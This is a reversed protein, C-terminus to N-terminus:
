SIIEVDESIYGPSRKKQNHKIIEFANILSNKAESAHMGLVIGLSILDHASRMQWPSQSFSAFVMRLKYKRCLRINQMTRGLILPKNKSNLISNLSFGITIERKYALNCLVQNLGSVRYHIKDKRLALEFDFMMDANQKELIQQDKETDSKVLVFDCIGKAKRINSFDSKLGFFLKVETTKQLENIEYKKKTIDPAFNYVFCLSSYSLKEALLIFDKENKKPFVIDIFM